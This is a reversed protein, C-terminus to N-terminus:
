SKYNKLFLSETSQEPIHEDPAKGIEGYERM